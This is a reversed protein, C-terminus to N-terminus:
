FYCPAWGGLVYGLSDAPQGVGNTELYISSLMIYMLTQCVIPEHPLGLELAASIAITPRPYGLCM